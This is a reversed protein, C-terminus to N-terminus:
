GRSSGPVIFEDFSVAATLCFASVIAPGCFPLVVRADGGLALRRPEVGGGGASPDMQNLRLRIIAMAFPAGMVTHAIVIGTLTGSLGLRGLWALMALGM